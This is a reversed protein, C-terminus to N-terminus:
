SHSGEIHSAESLAKSTKGARLPQIVGYINILEPDSVEFLGKENWHGVSRELILARGLYGISTSSLEANM